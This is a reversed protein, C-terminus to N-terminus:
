DLLDVAALLEDLNKHTYIDTVDKAAHGVIKQIIVRNVGLSDLKSVFTHRCSHPTHSEKLDGVLEDWYKSIFLHYKLQNGKTNTFLYECQSSEMRAQILPIIKKNLPIVRNKGADTKSGGVMYREELHINEKKMDLLEGIRMGTYLLIVILDAYEVKGVKNWMMQIEADTFPVKEKTESEQTLKVFTSYDKEVIDNELAYTYLKQFLFKTMRAMSQSPIADVVDQMHKTKIEAFRAVHLRKAHKYASKYNKVSSVSLTPYARESWQNYVEEFTLKTADIDFPNVNYADLARRADTKKEHYSVYRFIQKGDDTWGATIRVAWPKRRKGGLKIIGGTSNARRM